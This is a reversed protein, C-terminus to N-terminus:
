VAMMGAWLSMWTCVWGTGWHCVLASALIGAFVAHPETHPVAKLLELVIAYQVRLDTLVIHWVFPSVNGTLTGM